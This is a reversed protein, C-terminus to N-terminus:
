QVQEFDIGDEIIKIAVLVQEKAVYVEFYGFHYVSDQKDIIFADINHEKLIAKVIEARYQLDTTYVKQWNSEM